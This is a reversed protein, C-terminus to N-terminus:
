AREGRCWSWADQLSSTDTKRLIAEEYHTILPTSIGDNKAGILYSVGDRRNGGASAKASAIALQALKNANLEQINAGIRTYLVVDVGALATLEEILVTNTTLTDPPSYRQESGIKGTERRWLVNRARNVTMGEKLVLITARVPLGGDDVPVLTPAGDRKLSKRAFEVSFPTQVGQIRDVILLEIEEGPEPILSGYALIGVRTM